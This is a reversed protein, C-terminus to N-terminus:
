FRGRALIGGGDTAFTPTLQLWGSSSDQASPGGFIALGLGVAAVGGGAILLITTPLVLADADDLLKCDQEPNPCSENGEKEKSKLILGMASGAGLAAVGVGLTVFGVTRVTGGSRTRPTPTSSPSLSDGAGAVGKPPEPPPADFDFDHSATQGPRLAVNWVLRRGRKEIATIAHTGARLVLSRKGGTLAYEQAGVASGVRQDHLEVEGSPSSIVVNAANGRVLLMDREIEEREERAIEKGSQRLYEEYYELAEGDRELKLACFGLNGLVKWSKSKDYALRFQYYADQYNPPESQLLEVGNKFYARAEPSIKTEAGLAPLAVNLVLTQILCAALFRFQKM